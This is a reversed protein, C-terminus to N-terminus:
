KDNLRQFLDMSGSVFQVPQRAAKLSSNISTYAGVSFSLVYHLPTQGDADPHNVDAGLQLLLDIVEMYGRDCAWHILALGSDDLENLHNPSTSLFRQVEELNGEKCWDFITKDSECIDGEDRYLTSVGVGLGGRSKSDRWNDDIVDMKEVYKEMAEDRSMGGLKSWADWKQRGQFDFMGPRKTSCQGNKAQKFHAYFFLLNEKPLQDVLSKLHEAAKYFSEELESEEEEFYEEM